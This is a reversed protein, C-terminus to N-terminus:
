RKRRQRPQLLVVSGPQIDDLSELWAIAESVRESVSACRTSADHLQIVVEDSMIGEGVPGVLSLKYEGSNKSGGLKSRLEELADDNSATSLKAQLYTHNEYDLALPRNISTAQGTANTTEAM